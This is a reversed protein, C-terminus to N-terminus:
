VETETEIETERDREWNAGPGNAGSKIRFAPFHCKNSEVM